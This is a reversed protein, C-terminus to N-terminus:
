TVNASTTPTTLPNVTASSSFSWASATSTLSKPIILRYLSIPPPYYPVFQRPITDYGLRNEFQVQRNHIANAWQFEEAHVRELNANLADLKGSLEKFQEDTM